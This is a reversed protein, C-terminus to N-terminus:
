KQDGIEEMEKKTLFGWFTKYDDENIVPNSKQLQPSVHLLADEFISYPRYGTIIIGKQARSKIIFTPFRKVQHQQIEQM